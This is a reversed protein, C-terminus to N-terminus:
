GGIIKEADKVRLKGSILKPLLTDRITALAHSEYLNQVIQEYLSRSLQDFKFMASEPPAEVPITRFNTKNIELFTSGNARSVIKDHASHAWLLLFL